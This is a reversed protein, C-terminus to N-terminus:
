PRNLTTSPTQPAGGARSGEDLEIAKVEHEQALAILSERTEADAQEALRRLRKAQASHQYADM